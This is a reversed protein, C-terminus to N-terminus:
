TLLKQIQRELQRFAKYADPEHKDSLVISVEIQTTMASLVASLLKEIREQSVELRGLFQVVDQSTSSDQTDMDMITNYSM